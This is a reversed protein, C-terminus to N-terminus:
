INPNAKYNINMFVHHLIFGNEGHGSTGIRIAANNFNSSLDIFSNNNFQYSEPFEVENIISNKYKEWSKLFNTEPGKYYVLLFLGQKSPTYNFIKVSHKQVEYNNEGTLKLAECVALEQNNSAYIAFDIEGPNSLKSNAYGGRASSARWHHFSLLGNLGMIILDSYKDEKSIESVSNINSLMEHVTKVLCNLIYGNINEADNVSSPILKVLNEPNSSLLTNFVEKFTEPDHNEVILDNMEKIFSPVTGDKHRHYETAEKVLSIAEPKMKRMLRNKVGIEFFGPRLRDIYSLSGYLSDFEEYRELANFAALKNHLLKDEIVDLSIDARLSKQYDNWESLAEAFLNNKKIPDTEKEAWHIKAAFRNLAVTITDDDKRYVLENFLKYAQEPNDNKFHYLARYFDKENNPYLRTNHFYITGEPEPVVDIANLDNSQFALILKTRYTTAMIENSLISDERSKTVDEWYALADSAKDQFQQHKSLISMIFQIDTFTSVNKLEDVTDQTNLANQLLAQDQESTMTEILKLTRVFVDTQLLAKILRERDAASFHNSVKGLEPILESQSNSFTPREDISNFIDYRHKLPDNTSYPLVIDMIANQLRVLSNNLLVGQRRLLSERKKLQQYTTILVRLHIRLKDIIFRNYPDYEDGTTNFTLNAPNLFSLSLNEDELHLYLAAWDIAQINQTAPLFIPIVEKPKWTEYDKTTISTVTITELYCQQMVLAVDYHQLEYKNGRASIRDSLKALYLLLELKTYHFDVTGNNYRNNRKLASVKIFLELLLEPYYKEQTNVQGNYIPYQDPRDQLEQKIAESLKKADESTVRQSRTDQGKIQYQPDIVTLLCDFIIKAKQQNSTRVDSQLITLLHKFLVIATQSKIETPTEFIHSTIEAKKSISFLASTMATNPMLVPILEPRWQWIWFALTWILYPKEHIGPILDNIRDFIYDNCKHSKVLQGTLYSITERCSQAFYLYDDTAWRQAGSIAKMTDFADEFADPFDSSNLREALQLTRVDRDMYYDLLAKKYEDPGHDLDRENMIIAVASRNFHDIEGPKLYKYIDSERNGPIVFKRCWLVMLQEPSMGENSDSLKRWLLAGAEELTDHTCYRSNYLTIEFQGDKELALGSTLMDSLDPTLDYKRKHEIYLTTLKEKSIILKNNEQIKDQFFTLFTFQDWNEIIPTYYGVNTIKVSDADISLVHAQKAKELDLTISHKQQYNEVMKEFDEVSLKEDRKIQITRLFQLENKSESIKRASNISARIAAPMYIINTVIRLWHKNFLEDINIEIGTLKTFDAAIEELMNRGPAFYIQENTQFLVEAIFDQKRWLLPNDNTEADHQYHDKTSYLRMTMGIIKAQENVDPM